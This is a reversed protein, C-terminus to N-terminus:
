KTAGISCDASRFKRRATFAHFFRDDEDITLILSRNERGFVIPVVTLRNRGDNRVANSRKERWEKGGKRALVIIMAGATTLRGPLCAVRPYTEGQIEPIM